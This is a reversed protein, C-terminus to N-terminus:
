ITEDDADSNSLSGSGGTNDPGPKIQQYVTYWNASVELQAQALTINNECVQKHLWNEVLDKQKAGALNGSADKVTYSEPWLNKPDTPSGGLELSILHDEEYDGLKKDTYGYQTIQKAKLATTYASSPRISATSWKQSCITQIINKQSISYNLVGPTLDGNPLVNAALTGKLPQTPSNIKNEVFVVSVAIGMCVLIVLFDREPRM